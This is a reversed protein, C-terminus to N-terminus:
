RHRRRATGDVAPRQQGELQGDWDARQDRLLRGSLQLQRVAPHARQQVLRGAPQQSSTLSWINNVLVGYVWPDGHSLHLVVATPGLGWNKNGLEASSNTPMQTIAGLGWIWEGPNAPSLFASLQIDGIGSKAGIDPGISPMWLLPVITRAIINWDKDVDFPIV